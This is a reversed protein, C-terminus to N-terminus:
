PGSARIDAIHPLMLTLDDIPSPEFDHHMYFARAEDDKAHVLLLRVGVLAAVEVAKVIFHKLLAAGLGRGQHQVDIAMRALLLAPLEDPQNRAARSTARSRLLSSTASAYYAVVRNTEDIVVWTRSAGSRQNGLGRRRLWNDLAPKGSDFDDLVHDASLLLPGELTM